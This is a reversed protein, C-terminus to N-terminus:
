KLADLMKFMKLRMPQSAGEHNNVLFAFVLPTGDSSTHYGAYGLVGGITGSKIKMNNYLPMNEYFSGFWNEKKVQNLIKAMALTTLRNEPSLGSGDKIKLAGANIALRKAWLKQEWEAAAKTDTDINEHLAATKLFAEGYLNISRKLFWYCMQSLTPSYYKDLLKTDAPIDREEAKLRYATTAEQEVAIGEKILAEKLGVAASYAGDPLSIEIQKKLNIAYTGRLIIKRSYPASFAYVQDGTGASGIRVENIIDLGTIAPETRLLVAKDGIKGNPSIIIKFKNERWNLASVGAGYYQGMDVWPWGEPATHGNFLEDDGIVTGKIRKIGANMIATKWRNLLVDPQAEEFSESGLSPDGTGKIIINGELTGDKIMGNYLLDTEYKFNSGLISYATATTITKLTSATAMGLKENKAYMIEGTNANLVTISAMGFQLDPDKEFTEFAKIIKQALPQSFATDNFILFGLLFTLLYKM